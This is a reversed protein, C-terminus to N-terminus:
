ASKRNLFAVVEESFAQAFEINSFHVAPFTKLRAGPITSAIAEGMAHSTVTDFEGAIVLTPSQILASTRRMDADRVAAFLGALGKRSINLLMERFQRVVAGNAAIMAKPFWNGLFTEAAERMDPAALTAAISRDFTEAPGLYSSTNSLILRDIREPTHIALWQGVWGGLSLGLFHAREIGLRDMLELVDRGLRGDSYAGAPVDSGGHGRYDYRIVRFHEAFKPIQLDWMQLTTAISNALILAPRDNRGDIRYAIRVGDGTTFFSLAAPEEPNLTALEASNITM